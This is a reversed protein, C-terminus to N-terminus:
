SSPLTKRQQLEVFYDITVNVYVAGPDDGAVAAAVFVHALCNKDPNSGFDAGLGPGQTPLKYDFWSKADYNITVTQNSNGSDLVGLSKWRTDPTELMLDADTIVGPANGLHVGVTATGAGLAASVSQFEATLKAGIVVYHGYLTEYVDHGYPQHGVGTLDPDHISSMRFLHATALGSAPDITVRQHYRM